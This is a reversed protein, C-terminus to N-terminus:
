PMIYRYPKNDGHVSNFIYRIPSIIGTYVTSYIGSLDAMCGASSLDMPKTDSSSDAGLHAAALLGRVAVGNM